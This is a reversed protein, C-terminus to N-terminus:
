TRPLNRPLPADITESNEATSTVKTVLKGAKIMASVFHDEDILMLKDMTEPRIRGHTNIELAATRALENIWYTPEEDEIDSLLNMDYNALETDIMEILQILECQRLTDTELKSVDELASQKMRLLDRIMRAQSHHKGIVFTKFEFRTIGVSYEKLYVLPSTNPDYTNM